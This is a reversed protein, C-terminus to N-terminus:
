ADTRNNIMFKTMVNDFVVKVWPQKYPAFISRFESLIANLSLVRKPVQRTEKAEEDNVSETLLITVERNSKRKKM